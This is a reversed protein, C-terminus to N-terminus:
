QINKILSLIAKEELDEGHKTKKIETLKINISNDKLDKVYEATHKNLIVDDDTGQFFILKKNKLNNMNKEPNILTKGNLFNLWDKKKLGRYANNYGNSLLYFLDDDGSPLIFLSEKLHKIKTVPALLVFTLPDKIHSSLVVGGGFSSGLFIIENHKWEKQTNRRLEIGVGKQLFNYAEKLSNVCNNMTFSGDSEWSGPFRMEFFTFGNNTLIEGLYKKRPHGPLGPIYLVVKGNSKKPLYLDYSINKSKLRYIIM